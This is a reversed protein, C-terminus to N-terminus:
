DRRLQGNVKRWIGLPNADQLEPPLLSAPANQYTVPRLFRDIALSGVSTTASNSTAPFPGGHVMAHVVEVGTPWGNFLVRGAKLEAAEMLEAAGPEAGDSHITVTLQGELSELVQLMQAADRVTVVVSAPGFVEAQLREDALFTEADTRYLQTLGCAAIGGSDTGLAVLDVGPHAKIVEAGSNFLSAIGASLM